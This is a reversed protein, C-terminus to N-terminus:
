AARDYAHPQTKGLVVEYPTVDGKRAAKVTLSTRHTLAYLAGWMVDNLEVTTRGRDMFAFAKAMNITDRHARAGSLASESPDVIDLDRIAVVLEAARLNLHDPVVIGSKSLVFKSAVEFEEPTAVQEPTYDRSNANVMDIASFPQPRLGLTFRDRAGTNLPYTGQALEEPNMTAVVLKNGTPYTVGNASVQKEGMVEFLGAQAKPSTRNIEDVHFVHNFAPGKKFVLERTEPDWVLGGTIDQPTTDPTGQLRAHSGGVVSSITKALFTKGVGPHGESLVAGQLLIAGVTASLDMEDILMTQHVENRVGNIIRLASEAQAAKNMPEANMTMEMPNFVM